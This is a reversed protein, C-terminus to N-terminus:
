VVESCVKLIDIRTNGCRTINEIEKKKNLCHCELHANRCLQVITPSKSTRKRPIVSLPISM